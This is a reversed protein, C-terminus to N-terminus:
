WRPECEDSAKLIMEFSIGSTALKPRRIDSFILHDIGHIATIKPSPPISLGFSEPLTEMVEHHLRAPSNVRISGRM